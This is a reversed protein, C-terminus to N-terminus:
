QKPKKKRKARAKKTARTKRDAEEKPVQALKRLLSDFEKGGDLIKPKM